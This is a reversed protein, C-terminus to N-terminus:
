FKLPLTLLQLIQVHATFIYGFHQYHGGTDLIHVQSSIATASLLLPQTTNIYAPAHM